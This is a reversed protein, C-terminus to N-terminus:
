LKYVIDSVKDGERIGANRAGSTVGAVKANLLTALDKVGTARVAIDGLKEAAELSLYGCMAFGREGKLLVLPAAGMDVKVYSYMRSGIKVTETCIM